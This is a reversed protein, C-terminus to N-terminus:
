RAPALVFRRSRPADPATDICGRPRPCGKAQAAEVVFRLAGERARILKAPWAIVLV